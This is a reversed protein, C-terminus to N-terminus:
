SKITKHWSEVYLSRLSPVNEEKGRSGNIILIHDNYDAGRHCQDHNAINHHDGFHAENGHCTNYIIAKSTFDKNM